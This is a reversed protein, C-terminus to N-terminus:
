KDLLRLIQFLKVSILDFGSCDFDVQLHCPFFDVLPSLIGRGHLRGAPLSVTRGERWEDRGGNMGGEM